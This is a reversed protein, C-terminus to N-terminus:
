GHKGAKEVIEGGPTPIRGLTIIVCAYRIVAMRIHKRRLVQYQEVDFERCSLCTTLIAHRVTFDIQYEDNNDSM